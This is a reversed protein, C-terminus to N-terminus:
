AQLSRQEIRQSHKVMLYLKNLPELGQGSEAQYNPRTNVLEPTPCILGQLPATTSNTFEMVRKLSDYTIEHLSPAFGVIMMPQSTATRANKLPFLKKLLVLAKMVITESGMSWSIPEESYKGNNSPNYYIRTIREPGVDAFVCAEGNWWEMGISGDASPAIDPLEYGAKLIGLVFDKASKLSDDSIPVAGDGDWNSLDLGVCGSFAREIKENILKTRASALISGDASSSLSVGSTLYDLVGRDAAILHPKM